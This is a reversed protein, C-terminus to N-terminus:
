IELPERELQVAFEDVSATATQDGLRPLLMTLMAVAAAAAGAISGLEVRLFLDPGTAFTVAVFTVLGIVWGVLARSHGMLAILAQALTLALIFLGSGAALLMLDGAGLRFKTGFLIRGVSPGLTGGAVVGIAGVALVVGVLRRLGDRFESHRGAGALRALKPLLAAQVAQFLLIPIRALFLGVIFDAVASRQSRTALLQAGLFPAYGLAQACVSGFLLYGLNASLESWPAEPGPELLGHQGVLSVLAAIIPPVALCLGYFLPNTVGAAALVACPLLRIVGETGLILGYPGFRGNGALTGRTLHQVCYTVLGIVLFAVLGDHGALVDHVVPTFLAVLVTLVSLVVTLAAGALGARRTVPGGGLHHATRDAVARGVEQELPLFFGPALVFVFVWLATLAAYDPKSLTRYAFIQFGYATLGSVLLGAGVIYTGEPVPRRAAELLRQARDSVVVLRSGVDGCVRAGDAPAERGPPLTM